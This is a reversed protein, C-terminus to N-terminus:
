TGKPDEATAILFSASKTNLPYALIPYRGSIEQPKFVTSASIKLSDTDIKEIVFQGKKKNFSRLTLFYDQHHGFVEWLSQNRKEDSEPGVFFRLSDSIQACCFSTM